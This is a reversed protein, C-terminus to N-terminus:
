QSLISLCKRIEDLETNSDISYIAAVVNDIEKEIDKLDNGFEKKEDYSHKAKRHAQISLNALNTHLTNKSNFTPINISNSIHTDMTTEITYSAVIFKAIISNLIGAVYYAEARNRLPIFMLKHDPVAILNKGKKGIEPEVVAVSFEGKGSIKGAIEKWVVKYPYFTYDGIDYVSYFPKGKGWLKQIARSKLEGRLRNFYKYSKPYDVKMVAESLPKGSRNDHPIIVHRNEKIVYWKKVDRGRILSFFLDEEIVEEVQRVQKKQGVLLPNTVIIGDPGDSIKRVWYAQNLGTYMGAYARYQPNSGLANRVAEYAKESTEMWPTEPKNKTMPIFFLDYQETKKKVNRLEADQEISISKQNSWLTCPIPFLTKHKKEILILSTRNTAGEFPYLTVLDHIKLVKCPCKVNETKLIDKSLFKRFGAGSQSKYVTLPILFAFRGGDASYRDLCRAVFLMAM